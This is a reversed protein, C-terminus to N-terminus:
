QNEWISLCFRDTMGAIYDCVVRELGQSEIMDQFYGPMRLPNVCLRDFVDKLMNTIRSAAKKLDVHLYMNNLLFSEMDRLKKDADSSLMILANPLQYVDDLQSIESQHILKRSTDICDSVLINIITKAIRTRRVFTDKIEGADILDCAQSFLEIDGLQDERILRARLGDEIDHCNYAIRDAANAIQGELSPQLQDFEDNEPHDYPSYHRALGLRTEYMLNLGPFGPYPHELWDVIRLAQKNHEFGGFDKMLKNLAEQGAHGFPSHGLDHGLCIAETLHENLGLNGAITRGILSVELSHTLRTRYNENIGPTFVQTKGELRRFASCHVIRDRDREFQCRYSHPEIPVARNRSNDETVAYDALKDSM